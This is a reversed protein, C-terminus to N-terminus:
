NSFVNEHDDSIGSAAYINLEQGLRGIADGNVVKGRKLASLIKEICDM